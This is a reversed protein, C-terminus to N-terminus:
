LANAGYKKYYAILFAMVESYSRMGGPQENARLYQGYLSRILPELPSQYQDYFAMLAKYDKKVQPHLTKSLALAASSDTYYLERIGYSYLDYYVSYRFAADGSSKASLYGAFNAENEKAYGLQHGMEHCTTFPRTFVPVTTNVQAEGTIPNYYGTYGMYDGLYSFLSPKVSKFSYALHNFQPQAELYSQLAGNFLNSKKLFNDRTVLSGDATEGIRQVVVKLVTELEDKSYPAMKLQMQRAMGLRNYNLGWLINFAAYVFLLWFVSWLLANKWFLGNARRKIIVRLFRFLKVILWIVAISYIIDGISFPIWGLLLRQLKSSYLYFGNSYYREVAPPFLSFIKVLIAVGGIVWWAKKNRHM